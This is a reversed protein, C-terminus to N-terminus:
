KKKLKEYKKRIPGSKNPNKIRIINESEEIHNEDSSSSHISKESSTTDEM